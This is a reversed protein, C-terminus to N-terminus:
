CSGDKKLVWGCGQNAWGTPPTSAHVGQENITYVAGGLTGQGTATVLYTTATPACTYVFNETAAPLPAVTTTDVCAGGNYKRNDQYYQEMKIRMGTLTSVAESIRGRKIYQTYSPVAVAALIAVVAVTVMLEILTFGLDRRM